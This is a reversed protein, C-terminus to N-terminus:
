RRNFPRVAQRTGGEGSALYQDLILSAITEVDYGTGQAIVEAMRMSRAVAIASHVLADPDQQDYGEMLMTSVTELNIGM